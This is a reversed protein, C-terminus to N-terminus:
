RYLWSTFRDVKSMDLTALNARVGKAPAKWSATKYINGEHDVFCYASKHPTAIWVRSYKPGKDFGFTAENGFKANLADVLDQVTEM